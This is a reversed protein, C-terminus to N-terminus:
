SFRDRAIADAGGSSRRQNTAMASARGLATESAFAIALTISAKGRSPPGRPNLHLHEDALSLLVASVEADVRSNAISTALVRPAPKALLVDSM